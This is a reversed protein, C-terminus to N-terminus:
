VHQEAPAQKKPVARLREALAELDDGRLSGEVLTIVEYLM